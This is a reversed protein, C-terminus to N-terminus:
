GHRSYPQGTSPGPPSRPPHSALGGTAYTDEETWENRHGQRSPAQPGSFSMTPKRYVREQEAPHYGVPSVVNEKSEFIERSERIGVDQPVNPSSTVKSLEYNRQDTNSFRKADLSVFERKSGFKRRFLEYWGVFMSTRSM